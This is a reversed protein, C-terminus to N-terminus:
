NETPQVITSPEEGRLWAEGDAYTMVWGVMDFELQEVHEFGWGPVFRRKREFCAICAGDAIRHMPYLLQVARLDDRSVVAFVDNDSQVEVVLYYWGPPVGESTAM